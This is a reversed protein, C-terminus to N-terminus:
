NTAQALKKKSAEKQAADQAKNQEMKTAYAELIVDTFDDYKQALTAQKSAYYTGVFINPLLYIANKVLREVRKDYKSQLYSPVRAKAVALSVLEKPFNLVANTTGLNTLALGFAAYAETAGYDIENAVININKALKVYAEDDINIDSELAITARDLLEFYIAEKEDAVSEAQKIREELVALENKIENIEKNTLFKQKQKTKAKKNAADAQLEADYEGKDDKLSATLEFAELMEERASELDKQLSVPALSIVAEGLTEYVDGTPSDIEQLTANKFDLFSGEASDFSFINPWQKADEGYFISIKSVARYALPSVSQDLIMATLTGFDGFQSMLAGSGLMKRQIAKTYHVTSYYPDAKLVNDIYKTQNEDIDASVLTPWIADSSIPIKYAMINNERVITMGIAVRNVQNELTPVEMQSAMTEQLASCGTMTFTAVAIVLSNIILKKSKMNVRITKNIKNTNMMLAEQWLIETM